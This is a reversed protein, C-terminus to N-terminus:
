SFMNKDSPNKAFKIVEFCYNNKGVLQVTIYLSDLFNGRNIYLFM